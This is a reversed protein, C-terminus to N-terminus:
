ERPLEAEIKSWYNNLFQEWDDDELYFLDVYESPYTMTGDKEYVRKKGFHNHTNSYTSQLIQVLQNFRVDPQQEWIKFLLDLIRQIRKPDRM